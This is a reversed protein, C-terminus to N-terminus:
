KRPLSPSNKQEKPAELIQEMSVPQPQAQVRAKASFTKKLVAFFEQSVGSETIFFGLRRVPQHEYGIQLVKNLDQLYAPKPKKLASIIEKYIVVVDGYYPVKNAKMVQALFELIIKAHYNSQNEVRCYAAMVKKFLEKEQSCAFHLLLESKAKVTGRSKKAQDESFTMLAGRSVESENLARQFLEFANICGNPQDFTEIIKRFQFVRMSDQLEFHEILTKASQSLCLSNIQESLSIGPLSQDANVNGCLEKWFSEVSKRYRELYAEILAIDPRNTNINDKIHAWIEKWAQDAQTQFKAWYRKDGENRHSSYYQLNLQTRFKGYTNLVLRERQDFRNLWSQIAFIQWQLDPSDLDIKVNAPLDSLELILQADGPEGSRGSRGFFQEMDRISALFTGRVKLGSEQMMTEFESLKKLEKDYTGGEPVELKVGRFLETLSNYDKAKEQPKVDVGRGIMGTSVTIMGPKGANLTREKEEKESLATHIRQLSNAQIGKALLDNYLALSKEDTECFFAIPQGNLTAQAIALCIEQLKQERNRVLIPPKDVRKLGKHRPIAIFKMKINSATHALSTEAEQQELYSGPTGSVAKIAGRSYDDLLDQATSSYIIKKEPEMHFDYQFGIIETWLASGDSPESRLINLYATLCQHVGDSYKAGAAVRDHVILLIESGMQPGESTNLLRDGRVIYNENYKLRMAMDASTQWTELQSRAISQLRQFDKPKLRSCAFDLFLDTCLEVDDYYAESVKPDNQRLFQILLSYVWEMGRISEDSEGSYNMRTDAMDYYALDCEDLTLCRRTPDPNLVLNIKGQSRARNRLLGLNTTDSYNIGDLRYLDFPSNSYILSSKFGILKFFAQASLFDRKALVVDATSFDDTKDLAFQCANKVMMVRTKGEGTGMGATIHEGEKLMAFLALYQTTNLEFTNAKRNGGDGPTAKARYLLEATVALLKALQNSSVGLHLEDKFHEFLSLLGQITMPRVIGVMAELANLEDSSFQCGVCNEAQQYADQINFGNEPDRACPEMGYIQRKQELDKPDELWELFTELVPFPAFRYTEEVCQLLGRNDSVKRHLAELDQPNIQHENDLLKAILPFMVKRIKPDPIQELLNLLEQPTKENQSFWFLLSRMTEPDNVHDCVQEVESIMHWTANILPIKHDRYVALFKTLFGLFEQKLIPYRLSLVSIRQMIQLFTAPYKFEELKKQRSESLALAVMAMSFARPPPEEKVGFVTASFKQIWNVTAGVAVSLVSNNVQKKQAENVEKVKEVLSLLSGCTKRDINKESVEIIKDIFVEQPVKEASELVWIIKDWLKVSPTVINPDKGIADGHEGLLIGSALPLAEAKSLGPLSPLIPIIARLYITASKVLSQATKADDRGCLYMFYGVINGHSESMVVFLECLENYHTKKLVKEDLLINLFKLRQNIVISNLVKKLNTLFNGWNSYELLYQSLLRAIASRVEASQNGFNADIIEKLNGTDEPTAMISNLHAKPLTDPFKSLLWQGLVSMRYPNANPDNNIGRYAHLETRIKENAEALIDRLDMASLLKANAANKTLGALAELVNMMLKLRYTDIGTEWHNVANDFTLLIEQCEEITKVNFTSILIILYKASQDMEKRMNQPYRLQENEYIRWCFHVFKVLEAGGKPSYRRGQSLTEGGFYQILGELKDCDDILEQSIAKLNWLRMSAVRANVEDFLEVLDSLAPMTKFGFLINSIDDQINERVKERSFRTGRVYPLSPLVPNLISNLLSAWLELTKETSENVVKINSVTTGALIASFRAFLKARFDIDDVLELKQELIKLASQFFSLPLDRPRNAMFRYFNLKVKPQDAQSFYNHKRIKDWRVIPASWREFRVAIHHWDEARSKENWFETRYGISSNSWLYYNDVTCQMEPVVFSCGEYNIAWIAADSRFSLGSIVSWLGSRDEKKAQQVLLLMRSMAILMNDANKFNVTPTLTLHQKSIEACFLQFARVCSPLDDISSAACHQQALGNWWLYQKPDFSEIIRIADQYEPTFLLEFSKLHPFFSKFLDKLVTPKCLEWQLYLQSLGSIGRHAYVRILAEVAQYSSGLKDCWEKTKTILSENGDLLKLLLKPEAPSHSTYPEIIEDIGYHVIDSAPSGMLRDGRIYGNPFIEAIKELNSLIFDFEYLKFKFNSQSYETCYNWLAKQSEETLLALTPCHRRFLITAERNYKGSELSNAYQRFEIGLHPIMKEYCSYPIPDLPALAECKVTLPEEKRIKADYEEYDLIIKTPNNPADREVFGAPLRTFDIGLKFQDRFEFLKECARLTVGSLRPNLKENHNKEINGFWLNWQNKLDDNNVCLLYCKPPVKLKKYNVAESFKYFDMIEASDEGHSQRTDSNTQSDTANQIVLEQQQEEEKEQAMEISIGAVTDRGRTRKVRPIKSKERTQEIQVVAEEAKIWLKEQQNNSICKDLRRQCESNQFQKPLIIEVSLKHHAIYNLCDEWQAENLCGSADSFIISSLSLNSLVKLTSQIKSLFIALNEVRALDLEIKDIRFSPCESSFAILADLGTQNCPSLILSKLRRNAETLKQNLGDFYFRYDDERLEDSNPGPFLQVPDVSSFESLKKEVLGRRLSQDETNKGIL